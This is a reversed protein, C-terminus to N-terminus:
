LPRNFHRTFGDDPNASTRTVWYGVFEFCYKRDILSANEDHSLWEQGWDSRGLAKIAAELRDQTEQPMRAYAGPTDGAQLGRGIYNHINFLSGAPAVKQAAEWLPRCRDYAPPAETAPQTPVAVPVAPQPVAPPDLQGAVTRLAGAIAAFTAAATEEPLSISLSISKTVNM